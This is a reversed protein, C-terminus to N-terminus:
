PVHGESAIQPVPELYTGEYGRQRAIAQWSFEASAGVISRVLSGTAVDRLLVDGAATTVAITGSRADFTGWFAEHEILAPPSM